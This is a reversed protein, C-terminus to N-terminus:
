GLLNAPVEEATSLAQARGPLTPKALFLSQLFSRLKGTFAETCRSFLYGILLVALLLGILLCSASLSPQLPPTKWMLTRVLILVPFHIVYLSFSFDALFKSLRAYGNSIGFDCQLILYLLMTFSIGVLYDAALESVLGKKSVCLTVGFLTTSFAWASLSFARKSLLKIRPIGHLFAGMLWIPLELWIDRSILVLAGVLLLTAILRRRSTSGVLVLCLVAWFVYYWFENALSWLPGNSGFPSVFSRQLFFFNGVFAKLTFGVEFAPGFNYNGIPRFFYMQAGPLSRTFFDCVAGLVLAPLLVIYLRSLRDIAYSRVSWAEPRFKFVAASIFFGSLVFFVMVLAHGIGTLLYFVTLAIHPDQVKGYDVWFLNRVHAAAVALAAVSRAMNLHSSSALSLTRPRLSKFAKPLM